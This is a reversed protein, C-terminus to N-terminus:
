AEKDITVQKRIPKYSGLLDKSSLAFSQEQKKFLLEIQDEDTYCM